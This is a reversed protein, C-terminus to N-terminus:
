PRRRKKDDGDHELQTEQTVLQKKLEQLEAAQTALQKKLEQLEAAKTALKEEQEIQYSFYDHTQTACIQYETALQKKLERLEAAQTALQEKLEQLELGQNIVTTILLPPRPQPAMKPSPPPTPPSSLPELPNGFVREFQKIWQNNNISEVNWLRKGIYVTGWRKRNLVDRSVDIL